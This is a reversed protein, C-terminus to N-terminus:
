KPDIQSPLLDLLEQKATPLDGYGGDIPFDGKIFYHFQIEQGQRKLQTLQAVARWSLLFRKCHPIGHCWLWEGDFCIRPELYADSM